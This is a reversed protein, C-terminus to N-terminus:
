QDIVEVGIDIKRRRCETTEEGLGFCVTSQFDASEDKEFVEFTEGAPRETVDQFLENASSPGIGRIEAPRGNNRQDVDGL